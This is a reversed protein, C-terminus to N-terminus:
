RSCSQVIVKSGQLLYFGWYEKMDDELLLHRTMQVHKLNKSIKPKEPMLFANFSINSHIVNGQSSSSLSNGKYLRNLLQSTKMLIIVQCWTTSIKGDITRMDTVAMPYLQPDYVRYRNIM